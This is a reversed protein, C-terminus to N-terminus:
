DADAWKRGSSYMYSEDVCKIDIRKKVKGIQWM